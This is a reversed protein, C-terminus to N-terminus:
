AQDLREVACELTEILVTAEGPAILPSVAFRCPWAHSIVWRKVENLENDLLVVAINRRDSVGNAINRWWAFLDISQTVGRRLVLNSYRVAGLLKRTPGKDGGERYDVIEASAEPLIVEAFDIDAVGDILVRFHNNRYPDGPREAM